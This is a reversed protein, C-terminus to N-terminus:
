QTSIWLRLWVWELMIWNSIHAQISSITIRWRLLRTVLRSAWRSKHNTIWSWHHILKKLVARLRSKKSGELWIQSSMIWQYSRRRQIVEKIVPLEPAMWTIPLQSILYNKDPIGLNSFRRRIRVSKLVTGSIRLQYILKLSIKLNKLLRKDM